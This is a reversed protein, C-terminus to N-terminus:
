AFYPRAWPDGIYSYAQYTPDDPKEARLEQLAEGISRNALFKAYLSRSFGAASEDNILWYPAIVGSWGGNLCNGAFGGLRGPVPGTKGVSCANLFLIPQGVKGLQTGLLKFAQLSGNELRLANLDVNEKYDGHGTFHVMQVDTRNLFTQVSTLDVPKLEEIRALMKRLAAVEDDAWGLDNTSYRPRIIVFGSVRLRQQRPRLGLKPLWRGLVHASGLTEYVKFKDGVTESPVVLEWPFALDDSYVVISRLLTRLRLYEARLAEPLMEWLVKGYDQLNSVFTKNWEQQDKAYENEPLNSRPYNVFQTDIIQSIDKQLQDAAFRLNGVDKDEYEEGPVGSRLSVSWNGETGRVKIALDCDERRMSSIQLDTATDHGAQEVPDRYGAPVLVVSHTVEGIENNGKWFEATIIRSQPRPGPAGAKLRFIAKETEASRERRVTMAQHSPGIFDFGPARLLVDLLIETEGVAFELTLGGSLGEQSEELIVTLDHEEGVNVLEPFNIEPRRRVELVSGAPGPKPVALARMHNPAEDRPAMAELADASPVAGRLGHRRRPVDVTADSAAGRVTLGSELAFHRTIADFTEARSFFGGHWVHQDHAFLLPDAIPFSSHGNSQYVGHEPVVLDNAVEGAGERFVRDVIETAFKGTFFANDLAPDPQYDSAAAAYSASSSKGPKNLVQQIYDNTGMARLGPLSSEATYAVLKVIGLLIEISYMVAGDPFATLFNTFVDLMDVVHDPDGLASGNNPTAVFFVKKFQCNNGPLLMDGREALARTVIGGRSHCIVDFEFKGDPAAQKVQELFWRANEDPSKTVSIHNFAIVRDQYRARLMDMVSGPLYGLMGEVTSFIGHVLLLARKGDLKSWDRCPDTPSVKYNSADPSWILDRRYKREIAGVISQTPNQLLASVVPIVLVKFVKRGFKTIPGRLGSSAAGAGLSIAQQAAVTRTPIVFVPAAVPDMRLGRGRLTDRRPEPL